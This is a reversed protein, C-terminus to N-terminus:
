CDEQQTGTVDYCYTLVVDTNSGWATPNAEGQAKIVLNGTIYTVDNGGNVDGYAVDSGATVKKAPNQSGMSVLLDSSGQNTITIGILREPLPIDQDSSIPVDVFKAYRPM